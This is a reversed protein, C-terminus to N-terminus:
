CNVIYLVCCFRKKCYQFLHLTVMLATYKIAWHHYQQRWDLGLLLKLFLNAAPKHLARVEFNMESYRLGCLQVSKVCFYM